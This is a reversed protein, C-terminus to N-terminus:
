HTQQDDSFSLVALVTMRRTSPGNFHEERHPLSPVDRRNPTRQGGVAQASSRNPGWAHNSTLCPCPLIPYTKLLSKPKMNLCQPEFYGLILNIHCLYAKKNLFNNCSTDFHKGFRGKKNQSVFTKPKLTLHMLDPIRNLRSHPPFLPSTYPLRSSATPCPLFSCTSLRLQTVSFDSGLVMQCTERLEYAIPGVKNLIRELKLLSPHECPLFLRSSPPRTWRSPLFPIDM